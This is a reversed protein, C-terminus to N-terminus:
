DLLPFFRCCRSAGIFGEGCIATLGAGLVDFFSSTANNSGTGNFGTDLTTYMTKVCDTCVSSVLTENQALTSVNNTVSSSNLSPFLGDFTLNGSLVEYLLTVTVNKGTVSEFSELLSPLCYATSNASSTSNMSSSSGVTSNSTTGNVPM